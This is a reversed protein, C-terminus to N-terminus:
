KLEKTYITESVSYGLEKYKTGIDRKQPSAFNIAECCKAVDEEIFQVFPEFLGMGRYEPKIFIADVTAMFKEVNHMYHDAIVTSYGIIEGDRTSTPKDLNRISYVRLYGNDELTYYRELNLQIDKQEGDASTLLTDPSVEKVNQNTLENLVALDDYDDFVRISEIIFEVTVTGEETEIQKIL